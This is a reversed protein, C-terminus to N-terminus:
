GSRDTKIIMVSLRSASVLQQKENFIDISWLHVKHGIKIPKAVGTLLGTRAQRLHDTTINLGVASYNAHDSICLFSGVSGLTEALTASAGGHLIGMPQHTRAEVPMTAKLFDPGIETFEIGILEALTNVGMENLVEVKPLQKWIM